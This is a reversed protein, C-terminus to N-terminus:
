TSKTNWGQTVIFFFCAHKKDNLHSLAWYLAGTSDIGTSYSIIASTYTELDCLKVEDFHFLTLQEADKKFDKMKDVTIVM